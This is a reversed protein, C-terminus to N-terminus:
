LVGFLACWTKRIHRDGANVMLGEFDYAEHLDHTETPFPISKCNFIPFSPFVSHPLSTPLLFSPFHEPIVSFYASLFLLCFFDSASFLSCGPLRLYPSTKSQPVVMGVFPGIQGMFSNGHFLLQSISM